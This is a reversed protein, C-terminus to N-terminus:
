GVSKLDLGKESAIEELASMTEAPTLFGEQKAAIARKGWYSDKVAEPQESNEASDIM